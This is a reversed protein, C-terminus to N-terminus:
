KPAIVFDVTIPVTKRGLIAWDQGTSDLTMMTQLFGPLSMDPTDNGVAAIRVVRYGLADAYAEADARAQAIADTIAARRTKAEDRFGFVPRPTSVYANAVAIEMVDGLKAVDDVTVEVTSSSNWRIVLAPDYAEDYVDLGAAENAAADAVAVAAEVAEVAYDYEDYETYTAEGPEVDSRGVGAEALAALVDKEGQARAAEAEEKTAGQGSIGISLNAYDAPASGQAGIHLLIEDAALQAAPANQACVPAAIGLAAAAAWVTFASKMFDGRAELARKM